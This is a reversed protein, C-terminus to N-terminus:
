EKHGGHAPKMEPAAETAPVAQPNAPGRLVSSRDPMPSEVAQVSAPHTNAVEPMAPVGVCAPLFVIGVLCKWKRASTKPFATM